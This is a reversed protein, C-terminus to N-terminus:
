RMGGMAVATELLRVKQNERLRNVGATVVVDGHSLGDSVIVKDTEYREITVPKLVVSSTAADVIWVAPHGAKDFLASGPLVMVQAGTDRPRVIVSSGFRMQEPPNKLTVKVQYTRTAPDAVPAIERVVGEVSIGPNSLLAVTIEPASADNRREGFAAEAVAFVADKEEPRAIKIVPRGVDVVQGPEANVGTVIGDFEAYLTAYALQDKALALSARTADLKAESSRLNRLNTDYTARPATGNALLLRFREEAAKAETLSAQASVVDAEASRLKNRYDQEDLRALVDGKRVTAGIDVTRAIVKGAVRFGLESEHRPKVEGIARRDDEVATPTVTVTRVPRVEASKGATENCATLAILATGLLLAAALNLTNSM